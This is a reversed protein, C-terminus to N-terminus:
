SSAGTTEKIGQRKRRVEIERNVRDRQMDMMMKPLALSLLFSSIALWASVASSWYKVWDPAESSKGNVVVSLFVFGITVLYLGFLWAHRILRKEVLDRHTEAEKWDGPPLLSPDGVLVIIGVIFGALVTFVTVIISAAGETLLPTVFHAGVAGLILAIALLFGRM